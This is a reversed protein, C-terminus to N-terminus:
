CLMGFLTTNQEEIKQGIESNKSKVDFSIEM